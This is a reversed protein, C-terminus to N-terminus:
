KRCSSLLKNYELLALSLVQQMRTMIAAMQEQFMKDVEGKMHEREEELKKQLDEKMNKKLDATMQEREEQLKRDMDAQMEQRISEIASSVSAEIDSQHLQTKKPPKKGYGKGRVYGSREGLVSSLIEDRTMPHEIEESQQEVVLQQLQGHIQQSQPDLWVREGNDKKRTHQIEWVKDPTDKEGSEPNRKVKYWMAEGHKLVIKQWNGDRFLISSRMILGCYNVIDRAGSGVARDIDDPIIINIKGGYKTKIDVTKSKYKGRGRKKNIHSFCCCHSCSILLLLWEAVAISVLLLWCGEVFVGHQFAKVVTVVLPSVGVVITSGINRSYLVRPLIRCSQAKHQFQLMQSQIARFLHDQDYPLTEEQSYSAVVFM